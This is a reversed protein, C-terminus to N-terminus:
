PQIGLAQYVTAPEGAQAFWRGVFQAKSVCTRVEESQSVVATVSGIRRMGIEFLGDNAARLTERITLFLIAERTYPLVTRVRPGLDTLVTQHGEVWALLTTATGRPLSDRTPKHLVLPLVLAAFPYPMGHGTQDQYSKIASYLLLGDFAPNLLNALEPPREPWARM